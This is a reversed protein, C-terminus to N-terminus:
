RSLMEDNRSIRHTVCVLGLVGPFLVVGPPSCWSISSPPSWRPTGAATWGPSNRKKVRGAQAGLPQRISEAKQDTCCALLLPLLAFPSLLTARSIRAAGESCAPQVQSRDPPVLFSDVPHGEHVLHGVAERLGAERWFCFKGQLIATLTVGLFLCHICHM